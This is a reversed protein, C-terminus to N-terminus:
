GIFDVRGRVTRGCGDYEWSTVHNSGNGVTHEVTHQRAHTLGHQANVM